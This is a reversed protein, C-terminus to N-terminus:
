CRWHVHEHAPPRAPRSPSQLLGALPLDSSHLRPPFDGARPEELHLLRLAPKWVQQIAPKWVQSDNDADPGPTYNWVSGVQFDAICCTQLFGPRRRQRALLRWRTKSNSANFARTPRLRLADGM